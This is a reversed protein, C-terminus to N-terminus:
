KVRSEVKKNMKTVLRIIVEGRCQILKNQNNSYKVCAKIRFLSKELSILEPKQPEYFVKSTSPLPFGPHLPAIVGINFHHLTAEAPHFLPAPSSPPLFVEGREGWWEGIAVVKVGLGGIQPPLGDGRGGGACRYLSATTCGITSTHSLHMRVSQCGRRCGIAGQRMKHCGIADKPRWQCSKTSSLRRRIHWPFSIYIFFM